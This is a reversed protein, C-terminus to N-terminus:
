EGGGASERLYEVLGDLQQESLEEGFNGPMVGPQFGQSVEADPEVISERIEEASQGPLVSDLDPGVQATTGADALTHCSGCQQAFLEMGGASAGEAALRRQEEVWRDFQAATLVRARSRMTPHGLGCLEACIVPYTGLKTPTVVTRTTIGPVADQKMRFEPVWFSHIVDEATIRFEVPDDIRMVLEGSSLQQGEQLEVGPYTFNWAFQQARIEIVTHDEPIEEAQGLAVGSYVAIAVVLAIPVVTWVIELGTHGHIPSGDELDGPPARFKYVAYVSVGAVVAFVAACIITVLWFANDILGAERSAEDPLWPIFIAVAALVAGAALGVLTM